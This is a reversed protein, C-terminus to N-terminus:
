YLFFSIFITRKSRSYHIFIITKILFDFFILNKQNKQQM